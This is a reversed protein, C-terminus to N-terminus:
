ARPLWEVVTGDEKQTFGKFMIKYNEPTGVNVFGVYTMNIGGNDMSREFEYKKKGGGGAETVAADLAADIKDKIDKPILLEDYRGMVKKEESV